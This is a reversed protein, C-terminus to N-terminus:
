PAHSFCISCKLSHMTGMVYELVIFLHTIYVDSASIWFATLHVARHSLFGKIYLLPFSIHEDLLGLKRGEQWPYSIILTTGSSQVWNEFLQVQSKLQQLDIASVLALIVSATFGNVATSLKIAKVTWTFAHPISLILGKCGLGYLSCSCPAATCLM